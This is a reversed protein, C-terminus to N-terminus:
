LPCRLQGHLHDLVRLHLVLNAAANHRDLAEILIVEREQHGAIAM